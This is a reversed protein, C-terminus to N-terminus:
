GVAMEIFKLLVEAFRTVIFLGPQPQGGGRLSRRIEGSQEM